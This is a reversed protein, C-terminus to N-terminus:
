SCRPPELAALQELEPRYREVLEALLASVSAKGKGGAARQRGRAAERLLRHLEVPLYVGANVSTGMPVIELSVFPWEHAQRANRTAQFDLM